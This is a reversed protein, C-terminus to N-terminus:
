KGAIEELMENVTKGGAEKFDNAQGIKLNGASDKVSRFPFIDYGWKNPGGKGNIDVFFLQPSITQTGMGNIIITGDALVVTHNENMLWEKRMAKPMGSYAHSGGDYTDMGEYEPVCGNDFPKTKCIKAVRLNKTMQEGFAPCESFLGNYDAPIPEGTSVLM